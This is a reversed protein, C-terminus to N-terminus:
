EVIRATGCFDKANPDYQVQVADGVKYTARLGMYQHFYCNKNQEPVHFETRAYLNKRASGNSMIDHRPAIATVRGTIFRLKPNNEHPAVPLDYPNRPNAVVLTDKKYPQTQMQRDKVSPKHFNKIIGAPIKQQPTDDFHNVVIKYAYFGGAILVACFLVAVFVVKRVYNKAQQESLPTFSTNQTM